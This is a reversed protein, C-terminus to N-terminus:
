SKLIALLLVIGGFVMGVEVFPGLITLAEAIGRQESTTQQYAYTITAESDGDLGGGSVAEVTGNSEYWLYDSGRDMVTSNEDYVTTENDYYAGTQGSNDLETVTSASPTFTENVVLNNEGADALAAQFGYVALIAVIALGFVAVVKPPM